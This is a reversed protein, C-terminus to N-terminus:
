STKHENRLLELTKTPLLADVETVSIRSADDQIAMMFNILRMECQMKQELDQAEWLLNLLQKAHHHITFALVDPLTHYRRQIATKLQALAALYDQYDKVDQKCKTKFMTLDAQHKTQLLALEHELQVRKIKLQDALDNEALVQAHRLQTQQTQNATHWRLKENRVAHYVDVLGLIWDKFKNM